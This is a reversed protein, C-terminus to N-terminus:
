KPNFRPSFFFVHIFFKIQFFRFLVLKNLMIAIDIKLRSLLEMSIYFDRFNFFWFFFKLIRRFFSNSSFQFVTSWSYIEPPIKVLPFIIVFLDAVAQNLRWHILLSLEWKGDPGSTYKLKPLRGFFYLLWFLPMIFFLILWKTLSPISRSTSHKSLMWSVRLEM